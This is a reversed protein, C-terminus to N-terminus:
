RFRLFVACNRLRQVHSKAFARYLIAMIGRVSVIGQSWAQATQRALLFPHRKMLAPGLFRVKFALLERESLFPAAAEIFRFGNDLSVKGSLQDDRGDRYLISRASEEALFKAGNAMVSFSFLYDEYQRLSENFRVREALSKSLLFSSTQLKSGKIFLFEGLTERAPNWADFAIDANRTRVCIRSACFVKEPNESALVAQMQKEIKAPEWEDDSDLFAVFQGRALEIGRNRAASPGRNRDQRAVTVTRALRAKAISDAPGVESGDDVVVIEIAPYTQREVSLLARPMTAERNFYPIIATVLPPHVM